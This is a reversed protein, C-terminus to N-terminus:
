FAQGSDTFFGRGTEGEKEEASRVLDGGLKGVGDNSEFELRNEALATVVQGIARRASEAGVVL